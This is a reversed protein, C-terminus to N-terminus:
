KIRIKKYYVTLDINDVTNSDVRLSIGDTLVVNVGIESASVVQGIVAYKGRVGISGYSITQGGGFANSSISEIQLIHGAPCTLINVPSTSPNADFYVLNENTAVYAAELTAVSAANAAIITDQSDQDDLIFNISAGIKQNTAESVPSKYDVEEVQIYKKSGVIDTM